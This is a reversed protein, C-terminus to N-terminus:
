TQLVVRSRAQYRFFDYLKRLPANALRLRKTRQGELLKPRLRCVPIPLATLIASGLQKRVGRFGLMGVSGLNSEPQAIPGDVQKGM